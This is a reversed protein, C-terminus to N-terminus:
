IPEISYKVKIQRASGKCCGISKMISHIREVVMVVWVSGWFDRLDLWFVLGRVVFLVTRQHGGRTGYGEALMEDIVCSLFRARFM